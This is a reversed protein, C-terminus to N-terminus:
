QQDDSKRRLAHQRADRIAIVRCYDDVKRDDADAAETLMAHHREEIDFWIRKHGDPVIPLPKRRRVVTKANGDGGRGRRTAAAPPTSGTVTM